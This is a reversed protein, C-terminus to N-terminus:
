RADTNAEQKGADLGARGTKGDVSCLYFPEREFRKRLFRSRCRGGARTTQMKPLVHEGAWEWGLSGEGVNATTAHIPLPKPDVLVGPAAAVLTEGLHDDVEPSVM